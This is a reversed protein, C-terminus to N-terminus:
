IQDLEYLWRFSKLQFLLRYHFFDSKKDVCYFKAIIWCQLFFNRDVKGLIIKMEDFWCTGYADCLLTVSDFLSSGPCKYARGQIVSNNLFCRVYWTCNTITPHPYLGTPRGSCFTNGAFTTSAGTIFEQVPRHCSTTFTLNSETINSFCPVKSFPLFTQTENCVSSNPCVGLKTFDLASANCKVYQTRSVCAFGTTTNCDECLGEVHQVVPMLLHVAFALFGLIQPRFVLNFVFVKWCWKRSVLVKTRLM